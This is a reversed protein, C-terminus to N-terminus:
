VGSPKGKKTGKISYVLPIPHVTNKLCFRGTEKEELGEFCNYPSFPFEHLHYITIGNGILASIVESLPHPWTAMQMKLGDGNETYTGSEYIEPAVQSFYPEGCHLDYAPHFEILHLCGNEKLSKSVLRAWANLDPLWNLAGYSVFVIDFKSTAVQEYAYIDACIFEGQLATREKLENAKKIAKPSFDVGTVIAGKRAWSLTDLGFHCQLHLLTKGDVDRVESLEIEKLSSGGNLFGDVDYMKSRFHISTREDWAKQNLEIYDVM